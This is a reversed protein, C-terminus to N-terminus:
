LIFVARLVLIIILLISNKSNKKIYNIYNTKYLSSKLTIMHAKM